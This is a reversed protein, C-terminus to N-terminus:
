GSPSRNSLTRHWAKSTGSRGCRSCTDRATPPGRDSSTSAPRPTGPSAGRRGRSRRSRPELVADQFTRFGDTSVQVRTIPGYGSWAKGRIAQTGSPLFRHRTLLDPQGPPKLTSRVQNKQIPRGADSGSFTHRSVLAQEAGTFPHDIVTISKLWKVSAMGYWTPVVLRLPFGHATLLPQDNADRALIVGEALAEDIPLARQFNHHVGLDWGADHGTFVVDVADRL